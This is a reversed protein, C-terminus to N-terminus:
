EYRGILEAITVRYLPKGLPDRGAAPDVRGEVYVVDNDRFEALHGNDALTLSGGFRDAPDPPLGFIIHWNRASPDYDVVGRLWAYGTPEYGFGEDGAAAPAADPTTVPDFGFDENVAPREEFAAPRVGTDAILPASTADPRDSRRYHDIGAFYDPGGGTPAGAQETGLRRPVSGEMFPTAEGGTSPAEFGDDPVGGAGAGPNTGFDGPQPDGYEPVAPGAPTASGNDFTGYPPADSGGGNLPPALTPGAGTGPAMMPAGFSGPVTGGPVVYQGGPAAQYAPAAPYGYGPQAYQPPSYCGVGAALSIGAAAAMALVARTM